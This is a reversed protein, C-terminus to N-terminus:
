RRDALKEFQLVTTKGEADDIELGDAEGSASLVIKVFRAGQVVHTLHRSDSRTSDGLMIEVTPGNEGHTDLDIGMLPLGDELWYDTMADPAGEYVAIRTPRFRNQEGFLSLFRSWNNQKMATNM